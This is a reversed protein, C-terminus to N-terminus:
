AIDVVLDVGRALWPLLDIEAKGKRIDILDADGM